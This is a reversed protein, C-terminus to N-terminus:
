TENQINFGLIVDPHMDFMDGQIRDYEFASRLGIQPQARVAPQASRLRTLQHMAFVGQLEVLPPLTKHSLRGQQQTNPTQHESLRHAQAPALFACGCSVQVNTRTVQNSTRSLQVATQTRQLSHTALGICICTRKQYM